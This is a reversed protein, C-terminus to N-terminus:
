HGFREGEIMQAEILEALRNGTILWCAQKGYHDIAPDALTGHYFHVSKFGTYM